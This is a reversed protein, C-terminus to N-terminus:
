TYNINYKKVVHQGMEREARMELEKKHKKESCIIIKLPLKPV